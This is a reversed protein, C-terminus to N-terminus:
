IVCTKAWDLVKQETHYLLYKYIFSHLNQYSQTSLNLKTVEELDGKELLELIQKTPEAVHTNASSISFGLCYLLTVIYCDILVLNFEEHTDLYRIWKELQAFIREDREGVRTLKDTLSVVYQSALSKHLDTRIHAFYEIIHVTTVYDIEKGYAIDIDVLSFPELHASNKSTIKKVGRALLELKGKEQTY